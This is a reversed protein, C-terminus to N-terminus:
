TVPHRCKNCMLSFIIHMHTYPVMYLCSEPMILLPLLNLTWVNKTEQLRNFKEKLKVVKKTNGVTMSVKSDYNNGRCKKGTKECM